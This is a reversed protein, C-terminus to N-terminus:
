FPRGEDKPKFAGGLARRRQGPGGRATAPMEGKRAFPTKAYSVDFPCSRAVHSTAQAGVSLIGNTPNARDVRRVGSTKEVVARSPSSSGRRTFLRSNQAAKGVSGFAIPEHDLRARSRVHRQNAEYMKANVPALPEPVLVNGHDGAAAVKPPADAPRSKIVPRGNRPSVLKLGLGFRPTKPKCFKRRSEGHLQVGPPPQKVTEPDVQKRMARYVAPPVVTDSETAFPAPQVPKRNKPSRPGDSPLLGRARLKQLCAPATVTARKGSPFRPQRASRPTIISLGVGKLHAQAAPAGETPKRARRYAATAPAKGVPADREANTVANTSNGSSRDPRLIARVTDSTVPASTMKRRSEIPAQHEPRKVCAKAPLHRDQIPLGAAKLAAPDVHTAKPLVM